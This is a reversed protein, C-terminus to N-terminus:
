YNPDLWSYSYASNEGSYGFQERLLAYRPHCGPLYYDKAMYDPDNDYDSNWRWGVQSPNYSFDDM